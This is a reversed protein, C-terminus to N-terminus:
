CLSFDHRHQPVRVFSSLDPQFNRTGATDGALFRPKWCPNMENADGVPNSGTNGGHFPSTRPRALRRPRRPLIGTFVNDYCGPGASDFFAGTQMGVPRWDM